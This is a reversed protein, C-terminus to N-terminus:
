LPRSCVATLREFVSCDTHTFIIADMARITCEFYRTGFQPFLFVRRRTPGTVGALRWSGRGVDQVHLPLAEETRENPGTATGEVAAARTHRTRVNQRTHSTRFGYGTFGLVVRSEVAKFSYLTKGVVVM